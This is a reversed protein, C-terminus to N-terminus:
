SGLIKLGVWLIYPDLPPLGTREMGVLTFKSGQVEIDKAGDFLTKSQPKDEDSLVDELLVMLVVDSQGYLGLPAAQAIPGQPAVRSSPNLVVAPVETITGVSTVQAKSGMVKTVPNGSASVKTPSGNIKVTHGMTRVYERFFDRHREAARQLSAIM